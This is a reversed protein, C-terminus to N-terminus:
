APNEEGEGPETVEDPNIDDVGQIASSVGDIAAQLEPSVNGANQAAEKLKEVETKVKGIQTLATNLKQAAEAQTMIIQNLKKIIFNLPAKTEDDAHYYHHHDVRSRFLFM